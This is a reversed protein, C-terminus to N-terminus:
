NSYGSCNILRAVMIGSQNKTQLLMEALPLDSVVVKKESSSAHLLHLRNNIHMAIGVHSIDLGEITTTLAILDGNRIEKEIRQINEEPIFFLERQNIENETERIEVALTPDAQLAPYNEAHTSMFDIMKEYKVGGIKRTIDAVIGKKENEHIWDSFYHLRSSYNIIRGERYRLKELETLFDSAQIEKNGILKSFVVVNELYTVCDLERFNVVLQEEKNGELTGGVYPTGMFMKAIEIMRNQIPLSGLSMSDATERISNFLTQDVPNTFGTNETAKQRAKKEQCACLFILLIFVIQVSKKM